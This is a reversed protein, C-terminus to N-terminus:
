PATADLAPLVIRKPGAKTLVIVENPALSVPSSVWPSVFPGWVLESPSGVHFCADREHHQSLRCIMAQHAGDEDTGPRALSYSAAIIVDGDPSVTLGSYELAGYGERAILWSDHSQDDGASDAEFRIVTLDGGGNFPTFSAGETSAVVIRRGDPSEAVAEIIGARNMSGSRVVNGDADFDMFTAGGTATTVDGGALPSISWGAGPRNLPLSTQRWRIEGSATLEELFDFGDERELGYRGYVFVRDAAGRAVSLVLESSRLTPVRVRKPPAELSDGFLIVEDKNGLVGEAFVLYHLLLSARLDAGSIPLIEPGSDDFAASGSPLLPADVLASELTVGTSSLREVLVQEERRSYAWLTGNPAKGLMLIDSREASEASLKAMPLEAVDATRIARETTAHTGHPMPYVTVPLDSACVINEGVCRDEGVSAEPSCGAWLLTGLALLTRTRNKRNM